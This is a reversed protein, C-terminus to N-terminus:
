GVDLERGENKITFDFTVYEVPRIPKIYCDFYQRPVELTWVHDHIIEENPECTYYGLEEASIPDREYYVDDYVEDVYRAKIFFEIEHKFPFAKAHEPFSNKYMPKIVCSEIAAKIHEREVPDPYISEWTTERYEVKFDGLSTAAQITKLHEIMSARTMGKLADSANLSDCVVNYDFIDSVVKADIEQQTTNQEDNM